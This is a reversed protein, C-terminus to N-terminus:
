DWEIDIIKYDGQVALSFPQDGVYDLLQGNVSGEFVLLSIILFQLKRM